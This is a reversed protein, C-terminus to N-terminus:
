HAAHVRVRASGQRERRVQQRKQHDSELSRVGPLGGRYDHRRYETAGYYTIRKMGM